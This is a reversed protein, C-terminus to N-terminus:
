QDMPTLNNGLYLSYAAYAYRIIDHFPKQIMPVKIPFEAPESAHIVRM